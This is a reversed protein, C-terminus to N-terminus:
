KDINDRIVKKINKEAKLRPILVVHGCKECQLKFDMGSRVVSFRDNGCPHKKKLELRDGVSIKPINM